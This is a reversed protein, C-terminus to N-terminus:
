MAVAWTPGLAHEVLFGMKGTLSSLVLALLTPKGYAGLLASQAIASGNGQHNSGYTLKLLNRHYSELQEESLM